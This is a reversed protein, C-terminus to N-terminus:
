HVLSALGRILKERSFETAITQRAEAGLKRCLSRDNWLRVVHEAFEEINKAVLGNMGHKLPSHHAAYELAVVPLGHAMAEVIKVQQGTGGFVPCIFFRSSKYLDHLNDVFVKALSDVCESDVTRRPARLKEPLRYVCELGPCVSFLLNQFSDIRDRFVTVVDEVDAEISTPCSRGTSPSHLFDHFPNM